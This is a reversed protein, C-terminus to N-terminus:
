TTVQGSIDQRSSLPLKENKGAKHEGVAQIESRTVKSRVERM